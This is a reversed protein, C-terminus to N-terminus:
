PVPERWFPGHNAFSAEPGGVAEDLISTVREFRGM